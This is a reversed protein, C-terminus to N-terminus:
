PTKGTIAEYVKLPLMTPSIKECYGCQVLELGTLERRLLRDTTYRKWKGIRCAECRDGIQVGGVDIRAVVSCLDDWWGAMHQADCSGCYWYRKRADHNDLDVVPDNRINLPPLDDPETAPALTQPDVPKAKTFKPMAPTVLYNRGCELCALWWGDTYAPELAAGVMRTMRPLAHGDKCLYCEPTEPEQAVYTWVTAYMGGLRYVLGYLNVGNNAESVMQALDSLRM